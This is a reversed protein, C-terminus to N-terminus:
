KTEGFKSYYHNMSQSMLSCKNSGKWSYKMIRKSEAKVASIAPLQNFLWSSGSASIPLLFILCGVPHVALYFWYLHISLGRHRTPHHFKSPYNLTTTCKFTGCIFCQECDDAVQAESNNTIKHDDNSGGKYCVHARNRVYHMEYAPNVGIHIHINLLLHTLRICIEWM